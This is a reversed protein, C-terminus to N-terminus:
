CSPPILCVHLLIYEALHSCDHIYAHMQLLIVIIFTKFNFILYRKAKKDHLSITADHKCHRSLFIAFPAHAFLKSYLKAWIFGM